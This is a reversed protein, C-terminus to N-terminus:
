EVSSGKAQDVPKADKSYPRLRFTGEVQAGSKTSLSEYTIEGTVRASTHLAVEGGIAQGDFQGKITISAAHIEGEVDGTDEIVIEAAEVRGKVFGLLEVTGPFFLEGTIRSGAGLHSREGAKSNDQDVMTHQGKLKAGM